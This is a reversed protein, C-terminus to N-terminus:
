IDKRSNYNQKTEAILASCYAALILRSIHYPLTLVIGRVTSNIRMLEVLLKCASILEHVWNFHM